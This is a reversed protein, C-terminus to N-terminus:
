KIILIETGVLNCTYLTAIDLKKPGLYPTDSKLVISFDPAKDSIRLTIGHPASSLIFSPVLTTFNERAYRCWPDLFSHEWIVEGEVLYEIIPSFPGVLHSISIESFTSVQVYTLKLLNGQELLFDGKYSQLLYEKSDINKMLSRDDFSFSDLFNLIENAYLTAGLETTHVGDHLLEDLPIKHVLYRLDLIPIAHSDSLEVLMSESDRTTEINAKTPLILFVPVAHNKLIQALIYSLVDLDYSSESTTSWELFVINPKNEGDFIKNVNYFGANFLQSSPYSLRCFNHRQNGHLKQFYGTHTSQHTVSAGFFLISDSQM